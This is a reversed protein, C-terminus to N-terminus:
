FKYRYGISFSYVEVYEGLRFSLEQRTYDAGVNLLSYIGIPKQWGIGFSRAKLLYVNENTPYYNREDPSFGAGAKM